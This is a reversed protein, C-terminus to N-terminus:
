SSISSALTARSSCGKMVVFILYDGEKLAVAVYELTERNSKAQAKLRRIHSWFESINGNFHHKGM